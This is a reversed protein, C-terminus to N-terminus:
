QYDSHHYNDQDTIVGNNLEDARQSLLVDAQRMIAGFKDFM